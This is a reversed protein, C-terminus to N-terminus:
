WEFADTKPAPRRAEDPGISVRVEPSSWVDGHITAIHLRYLWVGPELAGDWHEVASSDSATFIAQPAGTSGAKLVQYSKFDDKRYRRWTLRVRGERLAAKFGTAKVEVPASAPQAVALSLFLLVAGM